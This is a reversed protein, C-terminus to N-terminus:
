LARKSPPKISQKKQPIRKTASVSKRSTGPSGYEGFTERLLTPADEPHHYLIQRVDDPLDGALVRLPGPDIKLARAVSEIIGKSPKAKGRELRSLYGKTVQLAKALDSLSRGTTQREKRLRQGFATSEEPSPKVRKVRSSM